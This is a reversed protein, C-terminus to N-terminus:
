GNKHNSMNMYFLKYKKGIVLPKTGSKSLFYGAIGLAASGIMLAPSFKQRDAVLVVLSGLTLLIGGGLLENGSGSMNFGRRPKPGISYVQNYHFKYRFSGLTDIVYFGMRTQMQKVIFEQLYLTDNKIENIRADIYAGSTTKFEINSGAYYPRITKGKMKLFIFDASQSFAPQLLLCFLPLLFKM